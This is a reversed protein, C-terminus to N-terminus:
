VFTITITISWGLSKHNIEINENNDPVTSKVALIPDKAPLEHIILDSNKNEVIFKNAYCVNTLYCLTPSFETLRTFTNYSESNKEFVENLLGAMRYGQAEKQMLPTGLDVPSLGVEPLASQTCFNGNGRCKALGSPRLGIFKEFSIHNSSESLTKQKNWWSYTVLLEEKLKLDKDNSPCIPFSKCRASTTHFHHCACNPTQILCRQCGARSKANAVLRRLYNILKGLKMGCDHITLIHQSSAVVGQCTDDISSFIVDSQEPLMSSRTSCWSDIQASEEDSVLPIGPVAPYHSRSKTLFARNMVIQNIFKTSGPPCLHLQECLSQAHLRNDVSASLM